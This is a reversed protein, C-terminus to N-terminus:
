KAYNDGFAAKLAAVMAHKEPTVTAGGAQTLASQHDAFFSHTAESVEKLRKSGQETNEHVNNEELEIAKRKAEAIVSPPFGATNAIHIGFSESCAGDLVNYLMVVSESGLPGQVLAHVHKNVVNPFKRSLATLEHFHTAFLSYCGIHKVIYESIAWAIGFGDFTSTGRGLEDIIILSNSSATQLITSAELMEAMFTSVGKQVADGAGVRALICDVTSMECSAAPVFSGVQAMVAISGIARIYTSKGGMNPGTIIQFNSSQKELVYDNAIYNSVSDMLEVCPHRAQLIKIKESKSDSATSPEHLSPRTYETASLAATVAFGALVDIEAVISSAAEALPMYTAATEVAKAVLAKQQHQYERDIESVRASISQLADTTFHVGNKQLSLVKVASNNARLQREDDGKTTRLYFAHQNNSDLKVDAFRAYGTQAKNLEAQAQNVLSDKEVRLEQLNPDHRCNVVLDPLEDFDVVHEVLQQYMVFKRALDQIPIFFKTHLTLKQRAFKGTYSVQENEASTARDGGDQLLEDLATALATLSRTFMYLRFVDGLGATGKSTSNTSMNKGSSNYSAGTSSSIKSIINDIDPLGKLPGDQIAIRAVSCEKLLEVIDLRSNIDNVSLLPQRLWRELLRSGMKSKCRNLVGFISGFQSPHDAKPFLNVADAAASDLRMFTSLSGLLFSCANRLDDGGLEIHKIVPDICLYGLPAQVLAVNINHTPTTGNCGHVLQLLTLHVKQNNDSNNLFLNRKMYVVDVMGQNLRSLLVADLKKGYQRLNSNNESNSVNLDDSLLLTICGANHQVLFSDLNSFQDNDLFEYLTLSYKIQDCM